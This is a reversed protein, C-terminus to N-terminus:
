KNERKQYEEVLLEQFNTSNNYKKFHCKPCEDYRKSSSKGNKHDYSTGSKMVVNCTRCIM